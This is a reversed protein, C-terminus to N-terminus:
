QSSGYSCFMVHVIYLQVYLTSPLFVYLTSKKITGGLFIVLYLSFNLYCFQEALQEEWFIRHVLFFCLILVSVLACADRNGHDIVLPTVTRFLETTKKPLFLESIERDPQCMTMKQASCYFFAGQVNFITVNSM